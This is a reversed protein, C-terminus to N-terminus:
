RPVVSLHGGTEARYRDAEDYKTFREVGDQTRVQYRARGAEAAAVEASTVPIGTAKGGCSGCPM